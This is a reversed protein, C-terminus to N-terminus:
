FRGKKARIILTSKVAFNIAVKSDELMTEVVFALCVSIIAIHFRAHNTDRDLQFGCGSCTRSPIGCDNQGNKM